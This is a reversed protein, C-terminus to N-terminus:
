GRAPYRLKERPERGEQQAPQRQPRLSVLRRLREGQHGRQGKKQARQSADFNVEELVLEPALVLHKIFFNREAYSTEASLNEWVPVGPIQLRAVRLYGVAQPDLLLHFGRVVTVNNEARVTINFNEIHVRDAYAAPQGLLNNLDQALSVKQQKETENKSPLAVFELDANLVEYSRLFEGVGHRILMPISYDLRVREIDIKRVANPASGTPVAHIGQITLNTFISGSLHIDLKLNNRAAVEILALRVGADFLPRHFIAVVLLALGM